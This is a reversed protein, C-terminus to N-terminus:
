LVEKWKLDLLDKMEQSLITKSQGEKGTNIKGCRAQATSDFGM